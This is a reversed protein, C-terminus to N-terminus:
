EKEEWKIYWEHDKYVETATEVEDNDNNYHVKRKCRGCMDNIVLHTKGLEDVITYTSLDVDVLVKNCAKCTGSM